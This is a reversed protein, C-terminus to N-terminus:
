AGTMLRRLDGAIQAAEFPPSFIAARRGEPDIVFIATTHDVMYQDASMPIKRHAVGLAAAFEDIAETTGTVGVFAPDFSTVYSALVAPTDREPDVSVLMVRPAAADLRKRVDALLALTTPCVDPCHTFGFFLLGWQGRLRTEDFATGTHDTLMFPPLARPEPLLTGYQLTPQAAPELTSRAVWAGALAALALGTGLLFLSTKKM